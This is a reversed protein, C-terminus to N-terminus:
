QWQCSGWLSLSHFVSMSLPNSQVSGLAWPHRPSCCQLYLLKSHLICPRIHENLTKDFIAQLQWADQHNLGYNIPTRMNLFCCWNSLSWTRVHWHQSAVTCYILVPRLGLVQRSAQYPYLDSSMCNSYKNLSIKYLYASTHSCQRYRFTWEGLTEVCAGSRTKRDDYPAGAWPHFDELFDQKGFNLQCCGWVFLSISACDVVDVRCLQHHWIAYLTRGRALLTERVQTRIDATPKM